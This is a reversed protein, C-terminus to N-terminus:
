LSPQRYAARRPAPARAAGACRTVLENLERAAVAPDVVKITRMGLARAPKLNIGLDDLMVTEDPDVGLRGLTLEYIEPEPKRTAVLCSEVVTDFLEFLWGSAPSDALPWINNTILALRLGLTRCRQLVEVMAPQAHEIAPSVEAVAALVEGAPLRFGADHAEATFLDVFGEATIERRELRAWANDHLNRANITRVAGVPAGARSELASFAGFPAPVIVGGLDCAVARLPVESM